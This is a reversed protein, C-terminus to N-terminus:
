LCNHEFGLLYFSLSVGANAQELEALTTFFEGILDHSGNSNWDFCEVKFNIINFM